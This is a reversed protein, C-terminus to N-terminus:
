PSWWTASPLFWACSTNPFTRNLLLVLSCQALCVQVHKPCPHEPKTQTWIGFSGSVWSFTFIKTLTRVMCIPTVVWWCYGQGWLYGELHDLSLCWLNRWRSQSHSCQARLQNKEYIGSCSALCWPWEGSVMIFCRQFHLGDFETLTWVDIKLGFTVHTHSCVHVVTQSRLFKGCSKAVGKCLRLNQEVVAMSKKIVHSFTNLYTTFIQKILQWKSRPGKLGGYHRDGMRFM